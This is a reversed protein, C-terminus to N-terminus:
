HNAIEIEARIIDDAGQSLLSEAVEEAASEPDDMSFGAEARVIRRGDSSGVLAHLNLLESGDNHAFAALPLQCSGGLRLSLSREARVAQRTREHDLPQILSQITEDDSRMQVGIAGQAPAPVWHPAELTATIRDDFELRQLGAAALIIASYNGADLKDLRTNVNGRLSEVVLDPRKALLQCQRRLSSTGVIAGAPLDDLLSEDGSVWADRPDARELIAGIDLGPTMDVPVDKMSHVAIDAEGNLMARELEKLFLGKGGIKALPTDLIQDGRTSLPLLEVRLGPNQEILLQEVHHAQWLALASKRTAIRVVGTM